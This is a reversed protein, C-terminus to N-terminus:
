FVDAHLAECFYMVLLIYLALPLKFTDFLGVQNRLDKRLEKEQEEDWLQRHYLWQRLRQVPERAQWFQMESEDRYRFPFMTINLFLGFSSLAQYSLFACVGYM